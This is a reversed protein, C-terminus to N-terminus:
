CMTEEAKDVPMGFQWVETMQVYAGNIDIVFLPGVCLVHDFNKYRIWQHMCYFHECSKTLTLSSNEQYIM